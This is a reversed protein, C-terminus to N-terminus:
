RTIKLVAGHGLRLVAETSLRLGSAVLLTRGPPVFMLGTVPNPYGVQPPVNVLQRLIELDSPALATQGAVLTVAAVPIMDRKRAEWAEDIQASGTVLSADVESSSMAYLKGFPPYYGIVVVVKKSATTPVYSTMDIQAGPFPYWNEQYYVPSTVGGVTVKMTGAGVVRALLDSM